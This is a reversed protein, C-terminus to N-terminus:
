LLRWPAYLLKALIYVEVRLVGEAVELLLYLADYVLQKM